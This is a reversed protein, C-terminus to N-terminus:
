QLDKWRILEDEGVDRNLTRGVVYDRENPGIGSGPRKADLDAVTIVHGKSLARRAVLSRRFSRRKALEADTVVRHRSGLATFIHKGEASLVVQNVAGAHGPFESEQRHPDLRRM